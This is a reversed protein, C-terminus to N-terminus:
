ACPGEWVFHVDQGDTRECALCPFNLCFDMSLHRLDCEDCKRGAVTRFSQWNDKEIEIELKEDPDAQYTLRGDFPDKGLKSQDGM